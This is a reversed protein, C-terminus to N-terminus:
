GSITMWRLTIVNNAVMVLFVIFTACVLFATILMVILKAQALASRNANVRGSFAWVCMVIFGVVPILALLEMLFFQGTTMRSEMSSNTVTINGQRQVPPPTIPADSAAQRPVAYDDQKPPTYLDAYPNAKIEYPTYVPEEPPKYASQATYGPAEPQPVVDVYVKPAFPEAPKEALEPGDREGDTERPASSMQPAGPRSREEPVEARGVMLMGCVTCYKANEPMENHCSSCIM